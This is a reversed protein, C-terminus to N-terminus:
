VYKFYINCMSLNYQLRYQHTQISQWRSHSTCAASHKNHKTVYSRMGCYTHAFTCVRYWLVRSYFLMFLHMFYIIHTSLPATLHQQQQQTHIHATCVRQSADHVAHQQTNGLFPAVVVLWSLVVEHLLYYYM